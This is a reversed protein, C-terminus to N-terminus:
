QAVEADSLECARRLAAAAEQQNRNLSNRQELWVASVSSPRFCLMEGYEETLGLWKYGRRISDYENRCTYRKGTRWAQRTSDDEAIFGGLIGARSMAHGIICLPAGFLTVEYTDFQPLKGAEMDEILEKANQNM